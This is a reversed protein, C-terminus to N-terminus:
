RQLQTQPTKLWHKTQRWAHRARHAVPFLMHRRYSMGEVWEARVTRPHSPLKGPFEPYLAGYERVAMPTVADLDDQTAGRVQRMAARAKRLRGELRRYKRGEASELHGKQQQRSGVRTGVQVVGKEGVEDLAAEMATGLM